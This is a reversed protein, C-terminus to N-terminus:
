AEVSPIPLTIFISTGKGEVSKLWIHGGAKLIVTKAVFLGLGNGDPRSLHANAGRVFKSFMRSQDKSPIGIGEDRVEILAEKGHRQASVHIVSEPKSFTIANQVLEHMVGSILIRDLPLRLNGDVDLQVSLKRARLDEECAHVTDVIIERIYAWEAKYAFKGQEMQAARRMEDLISNLQAIGREMNRAEEAFDQTLTGKEASEQLSELSWKFVTLPTGLQHSSITLLASREDDIRKLNEVRRNWLFLFVYAAFMVATLMVLLFAVPSFIRQTLRFFQEADMDIGLVAVVNGNKDVVPAYGSILSGWQDTTVTADVTPGAFADNQLTPISSIDYQDGPYSAEEDEEVAGNGNIDLQADTALSDADAVFELVDPDQTKRMVYVFRIASISGRINGLRKVMDMFGPDGMDAPSHIRDIVEADLQQVAVAATDRLKEKLQEEMLAQGRLYFGAGMGTVFGVLIGAFLLIQWTQRLIRLLSM